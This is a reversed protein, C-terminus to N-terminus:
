TEKEDAECTRRDKHFHTGPGCLSATPRIESTGDCSTRLVIEPNAKYRCTTGGHWTCNPNRDCWEKKVANACELRTDCRMELRNYSCGKQQCEGNRLMEPFTMWEITSLDIDCIPKERPVCQRRTTDYITDRGCVQAIDRNTFYATSFMSCKKILGTQDVDTGRDWARVVILAIVGVVVVALFTKRKSTRKKVNMKKLVHVMYFRSSPVHHIRESEDCSQVGDECERWGRSVEMAARALTPPTRHVKESGVCRAVFSTTLDWWVSTASFSTAPESADGRGAQWRSRSKPRNTTRARSSNARGFHPLQSGVTDRSDCM